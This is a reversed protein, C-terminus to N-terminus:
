ARSSILSPYRKIIVLRCLLMLTLKLLWDPNLLHTDKVGQKEVRAVMAARINEYAMGKSIMPVFATQPLTNKNQPAHNSSKKAINQMATQKSQTTNGSLHRLEGADKKGVVSSLSLPFQQPKTTM